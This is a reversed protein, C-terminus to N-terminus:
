PEATRARAARISRGAIAARGTPARASTARDRFDRGSAPRKTARATSGRGTATAAIAAPREGRDQPADGRKQWPKAEGRDPGRDRSGFDKRPGRDPAGRGFKKDGGFKREGQPRDGDRSPRPASRVTAM